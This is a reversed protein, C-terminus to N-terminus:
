SQFAFQGIPQEEAPDAIGAGTATETETKKRKRRGHEEPPALPDVRFDGLTRKLVRELAFVTSEDGDVETHAVDHDVELDARSVLQTSQQLSHPNSFRPIMSPFYFSSSYTTARRLAMLLRMGKAYLM